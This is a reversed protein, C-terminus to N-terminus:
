NFLEISRYPGPGYQSSVQAVEIRYPGPQLDAQRMAMAYLFSPQAVSYEARLDGGQLVRVLYREAEEGLPVEFAQWTDGDIRTRRIWSISHDGSLATRARLHAVPYPRLGAGDFAEVQLVVDPDDFGLALSGSRYYRALGRASLPLDIQGVTQDLLVVISGPPWEEPMLGDTGAQGRLRVSLEYTDPEVLRAEAFQFVEWNGSSGDGIAMANAGNLVSGPDASALEGGSLVLRLPAGRDWAGPRSRALPTETSGIVAPAAILRNLAYGADQSSSWLGVTGPWPDGGVAVHPAHPVEDGQLLPLDLMVPFVPVPAEYTRSVIRETTRDSPLYVGTEVRVAELSQAETREVRDIRYRLGKYGVVDGPGLSLMSKPLAFRAGDRAVRAEALWREVMATGENRTLVLPVDTQSVSRAEEDPFVVETSRIEYSSQGEVFGLRVRGVTDVEPSRTTEFIGNSDEQVALEDDTIEAALRGDRNRFGLTGDREIADFGFALSLPQLSGRASTLEGQQYGRVLGYLRGTDVEPVGSRECIERVVQALPQNTARGNLWHGRAYNGGDSWVSTQGPFEPFPRADWAWVHSRAIDVMAEGYIPSIPNNAADSWYSTQALLYQMQILDDRRGNSWSPLASESSKEDIFKNPQNSGKDVAPAGFEDAWAADFQPGRMAEPEFASFVEATAGNPWLLRQRTAQWEPRRDPPSCALIGSDGFIMVERVQDVTEGVLAVRRAVGTDEPGAGEVRSRVWEAGARTKGAGRGGMIVWTKWAGRPPLQHPLAWFEFVWPLALLANEGLSGLFENM